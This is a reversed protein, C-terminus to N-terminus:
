NKRQKRSAPLFPGTPKRKRIIPPAATPMPHARPKQGAAGTALAPEKNGESESKVTPTSAGSRASDADAMEIDEDAKKSRMSALKDELKVRVGEMAESGQQEKVKVKQGVPENKPKVIGDAAGNQNKAEINDLALGKSSKAPARPKAPFSSSPKRLMGHLDGTTYCNRQQADILLKNWTEGRSLSNSNGLIWLSSKARTIGVNMRRIDALFGVSGAESARVCSFIIIDSERGQFADTTNFEISELIDLGYRQSFRQKLERLQSKYPTIIGIRNKFDQDRYDKTLREYLLMAIEIEALNILSHGKPAAQHQGKVDFFRYPALLESSHWPQKRLSAMNDGDLLRSEYFAASPFASIDPHMRYQTDLLHVAEPHNNQMRVFLSQEYKNVAAAKSFVTPPLQRPDGVLICKACGYKLPILASMEVCQAAEDVVVTEFEINLSQFMDHGSGSLTACIIHADDLISQQVRKRNLEAMRGASNENDKANDIQTGLQTKRRRLNNFEDQLQSLETGKVEGGDLKARTLRVQESVNQHEKMLKQTKERAEKDDNTSGLRKKVLEDMTVDVVATNIADSRGLRVVNVNRHVGKLTKIGEKFRMVLEDVAANSPACVLLKKSAVTNAPFAGIAKPVEIRTGLQKDSLSDSLLAGVIAVITKTKGSGPPGQILTFADNHVASQVAKAQAKNLTYNNIIPTLQKDTYDLLPSPRAKTIEDCLDYYQLGLLAGYERELPTISQVKTGRILGGPVLQPVITNNNGPLVRYTIEIHQKQRRTRYVQAFCHPADADATPNDAKSFLVIDSESIQVERNEAHTVSSTIEIFADVSSRNVIKIEYPKFSEEERSKMFGHWAELILLPRFTEQYEAVHRFSNAVKQYQWENSNPPYDGQYFFDWSLITKHLPTLDPALRARMDKASRVRREIKVPQSRQERKLGIAGAADSKVTNTRKKVPKVGFLEADLEDDEDESSEDSSVMVGQGKTSHDKGELGIGQLGSGGERKAAAIAALDRKRKAEQEQQRKLRFDNPNAQVAPTRSPLVSKRGFDGRAKLMEATPSAGSIAKKLASESGMQDLNRQQQTAARWSDMDLTKKPKDGSPTAVTGAGSTVWSALSGQKQPKSVETMSPEPAEIGLHSELARRLQAKQSLTLKTKVTGSLVDDVYFTSEEPLRLEVSQLRGMIECTITVAKTVLYEDRLRLWKTVHGSAERPMQLLGQEVDQSTKNDGSTVNADRLAGAIVSYQNFAYDAFDMADRCFEMMMHKDHGALSWRETYHFMAGIALWLAQWASETARVDEPNLARSRLIGDQTSCLGDLVDRGLKLLTVCPSFMHSKAVARLTSSISSLSQTFYNEMLYKIGDRRSDQFTMSKVITATSQQVDPHGSFVACFLSQSAEPTEMLKQLENSDFDQLNELLEVIYSSARQFGSNWCEAHKPANITEKPALPELLLLRRVGILIAAALSIDGPKVSRVASKWIALSSVNLDFGISKQQVIADRISTLSHCDLSLASQIVDLGLETERAHAPSGKFTHLNELITLVHVRVLELLDAVTASGASTTDMIKMTTTMVQLGKQWCVTRAYRSYRDSQLRTMLQHLVARCAPALNAAKISQIFPDVWELLNELQLPQNELTTAMPKDISPSNLIQEAVTQPPVAALADWVDGPSTELLVKLTSVIDGYGDFNIQLHDLALKCIDVDLARLHHTILSKDLKEIIARAGRWFMPLFNGDLNVLSVRGMAATLTDRVTWDFESGTITRKFRKWGRFAWSSRQADQSFLFSTLAPTYEPLAIKRNTQVLRFPKDFHERLLQEDHLLATCHMSEFLAYMEDHPLAAISREQPALELLTQTANDLGATIRQTNMSDFRQMFGAVQDSDFQEELEHKLEHRGRHYERVCVTCRALQEKLMKKLDEALGLAQGGDFALIQCADRVVKKKQRADEVRAHRAEKEAPLEDPLADLVDEDYYVSGDDDSTRPCFWHQSKPLSKLYSCLRCM